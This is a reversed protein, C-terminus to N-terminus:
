WAPETDWTLAGTILALIQVAGDCAAAWFVEGLFYNVAASGLSLFSFISYVVYDSPSAAQMLAIVGSTASMLPAAMQIYPVLADLQTPLEYYEEAWSSWDNEGWADVEEFAAPDNAQVDELYYDFYGYYGAM